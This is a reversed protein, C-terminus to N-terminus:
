LWGEWRLRVFDAKPPCVAAIHGDTSCKFCRTQGVNDFKPLSRPESHEGEAKPKLLPKTTLVERACRPQITELRSQGPTTEDLGEGMTQEEHLERRAAAERSTTLKQERVWVQVDDQYTRRPEHM